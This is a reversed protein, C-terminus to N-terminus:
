SICDYAKPLDLKMLMSPRRHAKLSYIIEHALIIGDLIQYGEM